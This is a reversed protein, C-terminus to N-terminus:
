PWQLMNALEKFLEFCPTQISRHKKQGMNYFKSVKCPRFIFSQLPPVCILILVIFGKCRPRPQSLFLLRGPSRLRAIRHPALVRGPVGRLLGVIGFPRHLICPPALIPGRVASPNCRDRLALQFVPAYEACAFISRRTSFAAIQTSRIL